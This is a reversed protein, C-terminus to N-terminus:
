PIRKKFVLSIRPKSNEEHKEVQVTHQYSKQCGMFMHFVDGSEVVYRYYKRDLDSDAETERVVFNRSDGVSVVASDDEWIQKTPNDVDYLPDSHYRIGSKGNPYYNVLVSCYRVSLLAELKDRIVSLNPTLARPYMTKGSYVFTNGSDSFWATGRPERCEVLIGNRKATFTDFKIEIDALVSDITIDPFIDKYQVFPLSM